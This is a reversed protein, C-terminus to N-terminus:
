QMETKKQKAFPYGPVVKRTDVRLNINKELNVSSRDIVDYITYDDRDNFLANM